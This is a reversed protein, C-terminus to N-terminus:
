VRERCSARGIEIEPDPAKRREETVWPKGDPGRELRRVVVDTAYEVDHANLAHDAAPAGQRPLISFWWDMVRTSRSFFRHGGVDIRNGKYTHTQAIGGTAGTKEIVLPVIDTRALLEWAATLGAPGAGAIVAVRRAATARSM